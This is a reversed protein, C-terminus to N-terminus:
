RRRDHHSIALCFGDDIMNMGEFQKDLADHVEYGRCRWMAEEAMRGSSAQDCAWTSSPLSPPPSAAPAGARPARKTEVLNPRTSSAAIFADRLEAMSPVRDLSISNRSDAPAVDMSDFIEAAHGDVRTSSGVTSGSGGKARRPIMGPVKCQSDWLGGFHAVIGDM